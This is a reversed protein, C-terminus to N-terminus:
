ASKSSKDVSLSTRNHYQIHMDFSVVRKALEFEIESM